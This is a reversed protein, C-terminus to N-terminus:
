SPEKRAADDAPTRGRAVYHDTFKAVAAKLTSDVVSREVADFLALAARALAPDELGCRAATTWAGVVPACAEAAADAAAPDAMLTALVAVPVSWWQPAQADIFRVEFWGRPRVPPFLTSLHYALDDETPGPLGAVRGGVWDAFTFGPSALWPGGSTRVMMVPAALAYDAWATAPDDGVPAHTRDPDLHLWVAQRTSKWGTRRRNLVPSNAFAASVTPGVLHLLDWRRAIDTPDTGAELNVQVAATSSMMVRGLGDPIADFGHPLTDFYAAMADYRAQHLQRLPARDPDIASPVLALGARSLIAQLHAVDRDLAACCRGMEAAPPSSLEVQGGPELTCRSGGPFTGVDDLLSRLTTVPVVSEPEEPRAVIWELEAGVRGPPGTKFCIRQVYGHVQDADHVRRGDSM